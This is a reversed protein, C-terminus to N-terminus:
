APAPRAAARRAARARAGALSAEGVERPLARGSAAEFARLFRLRDTRSVVDPLDCLQSLMRRLGYADHPPMSTMNDLDILHVSPWDPDPQTRVDRSSPASTRVILVNKSSLDDHRIGARALRGVVNGLARSLAFRSPIENGAALQETVTRLSPPDGLSETVLLASGDACEELALARPTPIGLVELRRAGKWASRARGLGVQQRLASFAGRVTYEKVIRRGPEDGVRTVRSAPAQGLVGAGGQALTEAHLALDTVLEEGAYDRRRFSRGGESSERTFLTSQKTCRATRGNVYGRDFANISAHVDLVFSEVREGTREAHERVLVGVRDLDLAGRMSFMLRTLNAVRMSRTLRPVRWVSHLDTLLLRDDPALLFNNAHLDRHLFPHRHLGALVGLAARALSSVRDVDGVEAVRRMADGLTPAEPIFRGIFWARVLRSGDREEGYGLAEPVPVGRRALARAMRYESRARSPLVRYKTAESDRVHFTKLLLGGSVDPVADVRRRDSVKIPRLGEIPDGAELQRALGLTAEDQAGSWRWCVSGNSVM